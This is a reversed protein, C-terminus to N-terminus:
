NAEELYIHHTCGSHEFSYSLIEPNLSTTKTQANRGSSPELLHPTFLFFSILYYPPTSARRTADRAGHQLWRSHLSLGHHLVPVSDLPSHLMNFQYTAMRFITLAVHTCLHSLIQIHTCMNLCIQMHPRTKLIKNKKSHPPPKGRICFASFCVRLYRLPFHRLHMLTLLGPVNRLSLGTM